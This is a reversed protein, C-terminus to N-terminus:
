TAIMLSRLEAIVILMGQLQSRPVHLETFKFSIRPPKQFFNDYNGYNELM